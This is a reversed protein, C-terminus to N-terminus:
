NDNRAMAAFLRPISATVASLSWSVRDAIRSLGLETVREHGGVKARATRQSVSTGGRQRPGVADEYEGGGFTLWM